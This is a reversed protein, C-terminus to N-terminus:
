IKKSKEERKDENVDEGSGSGKDIQRHLKKLRDSHKRMVKWVQGFNDEEYMFERFTKMKEEEEKETAVNIAKGKRDPNGDQRNKRRFASDEEKKSLNRKM